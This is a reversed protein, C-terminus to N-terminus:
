HYFECECLGLTSFLGGDSINKYFIHQWWFAKSVKLFMTTLSSFHLATQALTETYWFDCFELSPLLKEDLNQM